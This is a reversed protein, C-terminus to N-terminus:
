KIKEAIENKIENPTTIKLDLEIVKDTSIEFEILEFYPLDNIYATAMIYAKDGIPLILDESDNHTFGFTGDQREYGPIYMNRKPLLLSTFIYQFEANNSTISLDIIASKPDNIFKDINAWGLKKVSFIYSTNFDEVFGNQGKKTIVEPIFLGNESERLTVSDKSIATIEVNAYETKIKDGIKREAKWLWKSFTEEEIDFFNDFQVTITKYSQELKRLKKNLISDQNKWNIFTSDNVGEFILMEEDLEETLIVIGIEKGDKLIIKKNDLSANIYLMGGSSLINNNSKTTLNGLIFDIPKFAEKIEIQIKNLSDQSELEFSNAYIRYISGNKTVLTTDIKTDITFYESKINDQNYLQSFIKAKSEALTNRDNKCSLFGFILSLAIVITKRMPTKKAQAYRQQIHNTAHKL